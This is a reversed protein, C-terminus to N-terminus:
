KTIANASVEDDYQTKILGEAQKRTYESMHLAKRLENIEKMLVRFMTKFMTRQENIDKRAEIRADIEAQIEDEVARKETDNMEVVKGKVVKMYKQLCDPLVPNILVYDLNKYRPTHVSERIEDVRGNNRNFLVVDAPYVVSALLLVIILTKM